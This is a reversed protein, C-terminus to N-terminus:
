SASREITPARWRRSRIECVTWRQCGSRRPVLSRL